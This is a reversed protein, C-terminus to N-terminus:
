LKRASIEVGAGRLREVLVDGLATAPTLVGAEDTLRRRDHHHHLHGDRLLWQTADKRQPGRRTLPPEESRFNKRNVPKDILGSNELV